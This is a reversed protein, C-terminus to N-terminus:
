HSGARIQRFNWLGHDRHSKVGHIFTNKQIHPRGEFLFVACFFLPSISEEEGEVGRAALGAGFKQLPSRGLGLNRNELAM